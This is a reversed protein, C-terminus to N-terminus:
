AAGAAVALVQVQCAVAAQDLAVPRACLAAMGVVHRHDLPPQDLLQSRHRFSVLQLIQGALLALLHASGATIHQM